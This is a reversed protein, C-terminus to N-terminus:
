NNEEVVVSGNNERWWWVVGIVNGNNKGRWWCWCQIEM